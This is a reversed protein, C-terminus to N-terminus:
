RVGTSTSTHAPKPLNRLFEPRMVKRNISQFDKAISRVDKNVSEIVAKSTTGYDAPQLANIKILLASLKQTDTAVLMKSDDLNKQWLTVDKGKTKFEDIRAQVKVFTDNLKVSHTQLEYIRKELRLQPILVGYIRFDTFISSILAKTTTADTSSAIKTGLNNLEIRKGGFFAEFASKQEATLAKSNAIVTANANLSNIREKILQLGRAKMKELSTVKIAEHKEIVSLVSTVEPTPPVVVDSTPAPAAAYLTPVPASIPQIGVVEEAFVSSVSFALGVLVTSTLVKKM